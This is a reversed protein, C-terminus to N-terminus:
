LTLQEGLIAEYAECVKNTWHRLTELLAPAHATIYHASIDRGPAHGLLLRAIDPPAGLAALTTRYTHRLHHPSPLGDKSRWVDQLPADKRPSPFLWQSPLREPHRNWQSLIECLREGMPVVYPDRKTVRFRLVQREFDLDEWQLHQVSRKRAGTLLLTLWSARHSPNRLHKVRSWWERLAVGDLAWDRSRLRYASVATTPAEPLEPDVKRWWRYVASLLRLVHNALAPSHHEAVDSILRRVELRAQALEFLSRKAWPALFREYAYRYCDLTAESLPRERLYDEVAQELTIEGVYLPKPQLKNWLELARRKAERLPIAGLRVKVLKGKVKRQLVFSKTKALSEVYLGPIGEVRWFGSRPPLADIARQTASVVKRERRGGPNDSGM